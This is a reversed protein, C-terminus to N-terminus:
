DVQWGLLWINLHIHNVQIQSIMESWQFIWLTLWGRFRLDPEMVPLGRLMRKIAEHGSDAIAIGSLRFDSGREMDSISHRMTGMFDLNYQVSEDNELERFLELLHQLFAFGRGLHPWLLSRNRPRTGGGSDVSSSAMEGVRFLVAMVIAVFICLCTLFQLHRFFWASMWVENDNPEDNTAQGLARAVNLVSIQLIQKALTSQQSSSMSGVDSNSGYMSKIMKISRLSFEQHKQKLFQEEGIKEGDSVFGLMCLLMYHRDRPMLKTGIDAVNWVTGVQFIKFVNERIKSQMRLGSIRRLRSTGLKCAIQRSASNDTHLRAEVSGVLFSVINKLCITDISASTSAYFESETSSLSIAHQPRASADVLNGNLFHCAASTSKLERGGQWDADTFTEVLPKMESGSDNVGGNLKQFLSAGPSTKSLVTAFHQTSNLYGLLRGLANWSYDTPSKLDSALSKACYQIDAREHSIYLLADLISRFAAAKNEDVLETGDHGSFAHATGLTKRAKSAIGFTCYQQYAQKIHKNEAVITISDCNPEVVHEGKLFFFSGGTRPAMSMSVKFSSKLVPMLKEQVYRADALFLVDDVHVLLVGGGDTCSYSVYCAARCM